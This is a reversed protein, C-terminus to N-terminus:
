EEVNFYVKAIQEMGLYRDNNLCKELMSWPTTSLLADIGQDCFSNLLTPSFGSMMSTNRQTSLTPFGKTSRLNWFLIHPPRFPKGYLKMGAEKYQKEIFEYVSDNELFRSDGQDMQMDSLVTLIMNQVDDPSLKSEIIADLILKLAIAFNTGSGWPADRLTKVMSVFTEDEDLNVWTPKHSFTLVRKGISSKEAIRIGLAIAVNLPDGAMSGSVDVMAIMNGLAGTMTSNDRWQSNLLQLQSSECNGSDKQLLLEFAQETFSQFGVRKGKIEFEGRVAKQIHENFHEACQVRDPDKPYRTEGNHNVNLFAKKQKSLTVSTVKHFDIDTWIKGCQKIQVTDIHKNLAALLKRYETKCKLKAAIISDNKSASGIYQPYYHCAFAEYLEGGFKKSKERPIWRSVLSISLSKSISTSEVVIKDLQEADKRLQNNAIAIAERILAHSIDLDKSLCYHCFYKIDKWSGFQHTKGEDGFDVLSKLAHFALQPFFHYWEYIMMYSILCEGKGDIIDRTHAIMKYLMILYHLVITKDNDFNNEAEEVVNLKRKLQSLLDHLVESLVKIGNSDTRTVQFSFQVIRERLSNSWGYEIHNNEGNQKPTFNDLAHIIASM